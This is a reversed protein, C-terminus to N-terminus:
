EAAQETGEGDKQKGNRNAERINKKIIARFLAFDLPFIQIILQM